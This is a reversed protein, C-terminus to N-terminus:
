VASARPSVREHHPLEARRCHMPSNISHQLALLSRRGATHTGASPATGASARTKEDQGRVFRLGFIRAFCELGFRVRQLFQPKEIPPHLNKAVFHTLDFLNSRTTVIVVPPRRTGSTRHAALRVDPGDGDPDVRFSNRGTSGVSRRWTETSNM